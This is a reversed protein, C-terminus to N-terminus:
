KFMELCTLRQNTTVSLPFAMTQVLVCHISQAHVIVSEGILNIKVTLLPWVWLTDVM